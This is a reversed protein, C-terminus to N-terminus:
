VGLKEILAEAWPKAEETRPVKYWDAVWDADSRSGCRPGLSEYEHIGDADIYRGDPLRAVVHGGGNVLYASAGDILACVALAFSHCHGHTFIYRAKPGLKGRRLTAAEARWPEWRCTGRNENENYQPDSLSPM